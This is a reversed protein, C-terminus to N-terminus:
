KWGMALKVWQRAMPQLAAYAQWTSRAWKDVRSSLLEPTEADKLAAVTIPGRSSPIGPSPPYPEHDWLNREILKQLARYGPEAGGHELAWCVGGLHMVLGRYRGCFDEEHQIDYV